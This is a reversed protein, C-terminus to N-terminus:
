GPDPISPQGHSHQVETQIFQARFSFYTTTAIFETLDMIEDVELHTRKKLDQDKDLRERLVDKVGM